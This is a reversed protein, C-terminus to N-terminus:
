LVPLEDGTALVTIASQLVPLFHPHVVGEPVDQEAYDETNDHNKDAGSRVVLPSCLLDQEFKRYMYRVNTQM